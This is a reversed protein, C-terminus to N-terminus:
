KEKEQAREKSLELKKSEKEMKRCENVKEDRQKLRKMM